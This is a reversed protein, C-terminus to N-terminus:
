FIPVLLTYDKLVSPDEVPNIGIAANTAAIAASIVGLNVREPVPKEKQTPMLTITGPAPALPLVKGDLSINAFCDLTHHNNRGYRWYQM